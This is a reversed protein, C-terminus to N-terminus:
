GKTGRLVGTTGGSYGRSYGGVVGWRGPGARAGEDTSAWVDHYNTSGVGGVVYIAGAADVM